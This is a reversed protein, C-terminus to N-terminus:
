RSDEAGLGPVQMVKEMLRRGDDELRARVPVEWAHGPRRRCKVADKATMLVPGPHDDRLFEAPMEGHDPLPHRIITLGAAELMHFFREPNGIAAVAHVPGSAFEDLSRTRGDSLRVATRGELTMRVAGPPCRPGGNCVVVDVDALREVPERLPGAPLLHGNGFGRAGDVVAVELDRALAYHQLGDDCIVVDAGGAVAARAAALRDACVWVPAGTTRAMLAPEDGVEVPDDEARVRRPRSAGRGGYGRSVVAAAVGEDTLREVLWIALPTKGTGGVTLNGIVIVPRGPHGSRLLGRRYLRRRTAMSRRYVAELLRLGAPPGADSYWAALIRRHKDEGM